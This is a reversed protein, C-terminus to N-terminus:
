YNLFENILSFSNYVMDSMLCSDKKNGPQLFDCKSDQPSLLFIINNFYHNLWFVQLLNM